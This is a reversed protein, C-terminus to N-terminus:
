AGPAPSPPADRQARTTAAEGPVECSWEGRADATWMPVADEDAERCQQEVFRVLEPVGPAGDTGGLLSPWFRRTLRFKRAHYALTEYRFLAVFFLGEPILRDDALPAVHQLPDLCAARFADEGGLIVRHCLLLVHFFSPVRLEALHPELREALAMALAGVIREFRRLQAAGYRERIAEVRTSVHNWDAGGERVLPVFGSWFADVDTPSLGPLAALAARADTSALTAGFAALRPARRKWLLDYWHFM